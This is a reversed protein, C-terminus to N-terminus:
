QGPRQARIGAEEDLAKGLKLLDRSDHLVKDMAFTHWEIEIAGYTRELDHFRELGRPYWEANASKMGDLTRLTRRLQTKAAALYSLAAQAPVPRKHCVACRAGLESPSPLSTAMAGHCTYCTAGTGESALKRAHITKGFATFEKQHCAGCTAPLRTPHVLSKADSVPLVDKHALTQDTANPDGGHCKECTVGGRGHASGRWDEFSHGLSIGLRETEHCSVCQSTEAAAAAAALGLIASFVM